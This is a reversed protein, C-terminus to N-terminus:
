YQNAFNIIQQKRTAIKDIISQQYGASIIDPDDRLLVLADMQAKLQGGIKVLNNDHARARSRYEDLLGDAFIDAM